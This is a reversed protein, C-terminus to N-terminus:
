EARTAGILDRRLCGRNVIKVFYVLEHFRVKGVVVILYDYENRLIALQYVFFSDAQVFIGAFRDRRGGFPKRCGNNEAKDVLALQRGLLKGFEHLLQRDGRGELHKRRVHAGVRLAGGRRVHQAEDPRRGLDHLM